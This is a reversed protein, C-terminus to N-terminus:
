WGSKGGRYSRTSSTCSSHFDYIFIHANLSLSVVRSPRSHVINANWISFLILNESRSAVIHKIKISGRATTLAHLHLNSFWVQACCRSFCVQLMQAAEAKLMVMEMKTSLLRLPLQNMLHLTTPNLGSFHALPGLYFDLPTKKKFRFMSFPLYLCPIYNYYKFLCVFDVNVSFSKSLFV